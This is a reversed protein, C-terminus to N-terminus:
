TGGANGVGGKGQVLLGLMEPVVHQASKKFSIMNLKM